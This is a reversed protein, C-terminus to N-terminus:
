LKLPDKLEGAESAAEAESLEARQPERDADPKTETENTKTEGELDTSNIVKVPQAPDIVTVENTSNIVTISGRPDILTIPATLNKLIVPESSNDLPLIAADTSSENSSLNESTENETANPQTPHVDIVPKTPSVNIKPKTPNIDVNLPSLDINVNPKTPNIDVNLPSIDVNVNPKTPNIDINLGSSENGEEEGSVNEESGNEQPPWWDAPDFENEDSDNLEAIRYDVLMRNFSPSVVPQGDLGSLYLITVLEGESNRGDISRDDIDLWVTKNLLIAVALEKASTGDSTSRNKSEAASGNTSGEISENTAEDSTAGYTSENTSGIPGNMAEDISEGPLDLDALTVREVGERIRSDNKEIRVDFTKGDVVKVVTGSAEDPSAEAFAPLLFILLMLSAIKKPRM